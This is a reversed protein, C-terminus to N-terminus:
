TDPAVAKRPLSADYVAKATLGTAAAVEAAVAKRREGAAVRLRVLEAAEDVDGPGRPPAGEVVVTIEGKM